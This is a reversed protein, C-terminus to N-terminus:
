ISIPGAPFPTYEKVKGLHCELDYTSNKNHHISKVLLRKPSSLYVSPNGAKCPPLACHAEGPTNKVQTTWLRILICFRTMVM